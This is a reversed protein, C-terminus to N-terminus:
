NYIFYCHQQNLLLIGQGFENHLFLINSFAILFNSSNNTIFLPLFFFDISATQPLFFLFLFLFLFLSSFFHSNSVSLFSLIVYINFPLFPLSGFFLYRVFLTLIFLATTCDDFHRSKRKFNRELIPVPRIHTIAKLMKAWKTGNVRLIFMAVYACCMRRQMAHCVVDVYQAVCKM